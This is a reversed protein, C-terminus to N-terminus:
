GRGGGAERGGEEVRGGGGAQGVGLALQRGDQQALQNRGVPAPVVAGLHSHHYRSTKKKVRARAM